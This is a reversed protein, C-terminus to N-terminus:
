FLRQYHLSMNIELILLPLLILDFRITCLYIYPQIKKSQILMVVIKLSWLYQSDIDALYFMQNSQRQFTLEITTPNLKEFECHLFQNINWSNTNQYNLILLQLNIHAILLFCLMITMSKDIASPTNSFFGLIAVM